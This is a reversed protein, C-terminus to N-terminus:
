GKIQLAQKHELDMCNVHCGMIESGATPLGLIFSCSCHIVSFSPLLNEGRKGGVGCKITLITGFM